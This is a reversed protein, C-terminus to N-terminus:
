LGIAFAGDTNGATIAYSVSGGNVDTSSATVGVTSGNAAGEQVSNAAGDTDTPQSPAVDNVNITFNQTSTSSDSTDTAQVTILYSGGSSEFDITTAGGASVTVVGTSSDIAFRSSADNTLSYTIPDAGAASFATVGVTTGVAAGETVENPAADADVPTSPPGSVAVPTRKTEASSVLLCAIALIVVILLSTKKM